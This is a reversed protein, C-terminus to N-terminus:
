ATCCYSRRGTQQAQQRLMWTYWAYQRSMSISDRYSVPYPYPVDELNISTAELHAPAQRREQAQAFTGSFLLAAGLLSCLTHRWFQGSYNPHVKGM